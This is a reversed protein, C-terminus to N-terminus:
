APDAGLVLGQGKRDGPCLPPMPRASPLAPAAGKKGQSLCFDRLWNRDAGQGWLGPAWTTQPQAEQKNFVSWTVRGQLGLHVQADAM